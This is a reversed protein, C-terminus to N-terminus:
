GRQSSEYKGRNTHLVTSLSEESERRHIDKSLSLDWVEQLKLKKQGSSSNMAIITASWSKLLSSLLILVKVKDDFDIDMSSLQTTIINFENIHNTGSSGETMKLNFLRHMLYVNNSTLPKKHMSCLAKMLCVTMKKNINFAVNRVLTLSIMGLTQRDM